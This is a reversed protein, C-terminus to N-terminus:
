SEPSGSSDSLNHFIRQGVLAPASSNPYQDLTFKQQAGAESLSRICRQEPCLYISAFYLQLFKPSAPPNIKDEAQNTAM